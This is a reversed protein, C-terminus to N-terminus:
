RKKAVLVAGQSIHYFEKQRETSLLRLKRIFEYMESKNM